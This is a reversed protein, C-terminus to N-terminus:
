QDTERDGASGIGRQGSEEPAEVGLLVALDPTHDHLWRRLLRAVSDPDPQLLAHRALAHAEEFTMARLARKVLTLYAPSASLADLGLGVLLPTVRPDGAMEGCLSVPIGAAHAADVTRKILALVGPNLERYRHAVLDNGRDVALTYQTLDNTGISFFDAEAAFHEAMLAVAPVEVMIGLLVDRSHAVGEAALADATEEVAARVARVEDLASVMPILLRTPGHAAARLVARLQPRLLDPRDLLIRVGRWGLFPNAERRAPPMAKDGGLDILRFTVPHPAACRVVERYVEYQAEEDLPEGQVLFLMETRYLGIGEAGYEALLPLEERFELNAQLGVAHGDQTEAPAAALAEREDGLAQFRAQKARSRALTEETPHLVVRGSFGDVVVVSEPAVRAAVDHLSVVAPVGLARAMISVHSTPGGFDLVVGLVGRRSFLLIDAATLNEAVVVRAPEIRSLARGQQLNRLLRNQVDFLDAARERVAASMSGELRRRLVELVSQVAFGAGMRRAQIRRGVAEYFPPDRLVLLQADFIRGASEGLKEHAVTVIKQLERESRAVAREFRELEAALDDPDLREAEAQYADQTYLYAPGIAVGPAVGIGELVVEAPGEAAPSEAADDATGDLAAEAPGGDADPSPYPELPFVRPM